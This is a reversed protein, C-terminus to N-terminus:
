RAVHDMETLASLQALADPALRQLQALALRRSFAALTPFEFVASLPLRVQAQESLQALLRVALLSQGGLAFFDDDRGVQPLGLLRCWHAAVLCETPGTPASYARLAFAQGDPAPLAKRDLKGNATLPLKPLVVWASPLMHEPLARDLAARLTAPRLAAADADPLATLYAVLRTLGPSDERALVVAERVGPAALLRSEIESLEVRLGRIKVQHDNRGLYQLNGDPLWRALDGTKYRRAHHVDFHDDAVFREASLEPLNWYGRAVQVGGIHLEGPVGVPVPQGHIDLVYLRTNAIPRGIPVLGPHLQPDCQWHSVEIAAETPGYLNHLEVHPLAQLCRRQLADSLAEGSCLLWRLSPCRPPEAQDLFLQLMSPVFHAQTIGRQQILTALYQPDQHGQPRALVLRAGAQLPSFIEWLSIDFGFPTKQLARDNPGLPFMTQHWQLRNVVGRHANMVGKPQGTSGSTYIVYALCGPHLEPLQPASAPQANWPLDPADLRCYTVEPLQPIRALGYGDCLVALPQSDALMYALRENPYEPDLPVYAAGAKLIGLLGIVLEPSRQLCLAVRCEPGVGLSRLYHALQNAQAELEAYSLSRADLEVAIADPTRMVQAEFLQHLCIGPAFANVSANFSELVQTQEANPLVPVRQVPTQPAHELADVLGSLATALYSCLRQPTLAACVQATLALGHGDDEVALHIPYHTREEGGRLAADGGDRNHRYNFLATFLPAPAPVASCRQALALSAHEHRLLAALDAHTRRVAAEAGIPEALAIRLPLTNIFPGLAGAATQGMRGFLVSGFVADTCGSTRAVVLAWALHCVSALSVGLRQAAQRLRAVLAADLVMTHEGPATDAAQLLGFPACPTDLDGLRERFFAEHAAQPLGLRAQAVLNRFPQPPPLEASRGAQLAQIESQITELTTHDGILHHQLMLLHWRQDDPDAVVSAHLLPARRLDLQRLQPRTALQDELPQQPDFSCCDLADIALTARCYVVQVPESLGEWLVASRLIDHRDIVTQLATLYADLGARDNFRLRLRLLYPDGDTALLHHFLLGDQLPSLAYIDQVNALGGPVQALLRDIDQQTLDALPLHQPTLQTLEPTIRNPPIVLTTNATTTNHLSAAFGALTPSAFLNRVEAHLGDTRLREILHIALLSHGGLTFFQDDRGVQHVGLLECWHAAITCEIPGQPPVFDQKTLAEETPAPLARRDLKGNPTLPLADLHVYAAPVMYDPLQAALHSRLTEIPLLKAALYYAVLCLQGSQDKRALVIADRVDSHTALRAAIEGPEIRLGRIKVQDDNRGLYELVGDSRWRALDGTKYLQANPAFRFPDPIFRQATLEPRDLYGRAVQVGGIHLEGAVGIPVPQLHTDLVYLQTNAVPTGIPTNDPIDNSATCDWFSVDIAAETPGYLNHLQVGPLQTRFRQVLQGPLAEGSCMVRTLGSCHHPADTALFADLMSPVFHLTTVAAEAITAGLYAPDKHGGPRALQLRAGSLLPWFLEWVSVDFSIPTKQLVVDDPTLAYTDQMWLLRNVVGRHTNMAGKPTGTSGSTYIVYALHDHELAPVHPATTPQHDWPRSPQDLQYVALTTPLGKCLLVSDAVETDLLSLRHLADSALLPLHEGASADVLLALPQSDALMDALRQAPYDPDLPVYAGGAKLIALLGVVLMPSRQACIAVRVDPGVGLQRLHHALQNAQADLAAYDLQLQDQAVAIAYPTRQVQQEILEHLLTCPYVVAAPQFDVLLQQREHADLLAVTDLPVTSDAAMARLLSQLYGVIRNATAADFVATAYSLTGQVCSEAPNGSRRQGVPEDGSRLQLTLDFRAANAPIQLRQPDLAAWPDDAIKPHDADAGSVHPVVGAVADQEWALLTQVLPTHSSSRVPQVAQVVQEFPVDQHAQADLVQQRVQALLAATSVSAPADFRIALTNVFFGILPELEARTRGAVPIGVLVCDQRCLRSLLAGWAALVIMLVTCGHRRALTELTHSLDADFHIAVEAGSFDQQPPRPRDLPLDLLSPAGALQRQWYDLQQQRRPGELWQRQWAAYDPYQIPLPPLPDPQGRLCSAYLASLEHLLVGVSWGDSASHHQTILLAHEDASLQLLRFRIPADRDLQFPTSAEYAIWCRLEADPDFHNNLAHDTLLQEHLVLAQEPPLLEVHVQEGHVREAQVQEALCSTPLLCASLPANAIDGNEQPLRRQRFCSRLAEHRAVLAHLPARLAGRDLAGRLRLGMPMIYTASPGELQDLFWLRQQAFSLPLPQNRPLHPIAGLADGASDPLAIALECLVPHAFLLAMPVQRMLATQLRGCVRMALLSHGGLAFFHDHRGVHPLGLLEAWVAALLCENAGQPPAYGAAAVAARDPAPLARRDLKGSVTLPLRQLRVFASPLMHEPLKQALAARLTAPTLADIDSGKSDSPQPTAIVYAVLQKDAAGEQPAVVVADAVGACRRLAAEIEGPEIRFGRVKLQQDVRGLFDLSGDERWRALDGSRYLRGGPLLPDEGFREATLSSQNLYGRAVGPGGIYIEGPVGIPVLERQDDLLYIRTGAIPRGIPVSAVAAKDFRHCSSFTTAETPGYANILQCHPLAQNVREVAARSLVDGGALLQRLSHLQSLHAPDLLEFLGATLWLTTVRHQQVQACIADLDLAGPPALVLQAGNLLAGWLEFTSADFALPAALLFRQSADCDVYDPACVLRVVNRQEVMVGKPVGTSGSTYLVYALHHPQLAPVDPATGPFDSWAPNVQDLRCVPLTDPLPLRRLADAAALVACPRADDLLASLRQSPADADLPLYAGGAKLIALLGIVLAPGRAASVAVLCDPGVGLACLHHALRNAQLDLEAYSLRTEGCVLATAQPARAAQEAFLMAM